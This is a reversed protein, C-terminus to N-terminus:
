SAVIVELAGPLVEFVHHNTEPVQEGDAHSKLLRDTSIIVSDTFSYEDAIKKNFSFGFSLKLFELILRIRSVAKVVILEVKGDSNISSPSIQYKGGESKGNAVAVMWVKQEIADNRGSISIKARFPESTFLANLGGLFYRLFGSGYGSKSAYYNTLGDVGIGFTNIFFGWESKIVDIRKTTEQNLVRINKDFDHNLGISQAFDNGSGIPIVGLKSDSGILGNAVRNVTGDGGCAIIHSHEASKDRVIEAISDDKRIYKFSTGPFKDALEAEKSRFFAEARFANSACNIIFCYSPDNSM